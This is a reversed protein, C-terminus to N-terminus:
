PITKIDDLTDWGENIAVRAGCDAVNNMFSDTMSGDCNVFGSLGFHTFVEEGKASGKIIFKRFVKGKKIDV